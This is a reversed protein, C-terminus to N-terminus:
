DALAYVFLSHGAALAVYQKGDVMYSMPGNAIMGGLSKRLLLEGTEAHMTIVPILGDSDFRPAFLDGEELENRSLGTAFAIGSPAMAM